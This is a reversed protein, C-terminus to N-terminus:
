YKKGYRHLEGANEELWRFQKEYHPDMREVLEWFKPGHHLERLHAVEHTIIYSMVKRPAFILRWCFSLNGEPSCSGWRSTTDRVTVKKFKVRITKAAEHAEKIIEERVYNRLWDRVRREFHAKDGPVRLEGARLTINGRMEPIHRITVEKGLIPLVTGDVFPVAPKHNTIQNALWERKEQLFDIALKIPVYRPLTMKITRMHPDYRLTIRRARPHRAVILPLTIKGFRLKEPLDSHAM